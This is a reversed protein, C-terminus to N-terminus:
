KIYGSYSMNDRSINSVDLTATGDDYISLQLQQVHSVDKPRITIQWGKKNPVAEYQFNTSSFKIGGDTTGIPITQARGYFPLYAIVSSPNVALDYGVSLQRNGGRMPRATEATFVFSKSEVMKKIEDATKQAEATYIGAFLTTVLFLLSLKITKMINM